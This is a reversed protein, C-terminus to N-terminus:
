SNNRNEFKKRYHRRFVFMGVSIVFFFLFLYARSQDVDWLSYTKYAALVAVIIYLYETYKAYRMM